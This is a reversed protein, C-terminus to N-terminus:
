LHISIYVRVHVSYTCCLMTGCNLLSCQEYVYMDCVEGLYEFYVYRRRQRQLCDMESHIKTTQRHVGSSRATCIIQQAEGWHPAERFKM